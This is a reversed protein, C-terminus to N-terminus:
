DNAPEPEHKAFNTRTSVFDEVQDALWKLKSLASFANEYDPQIEQDEWGVGQWSVICRALVRLRSLRYEEPTIPHAQKMHRQREALTAKIFEPCDTGALKITVPAGEAGDDGYFLPLGTEPHKLYLTAHGSYDLQSLDIVTVM